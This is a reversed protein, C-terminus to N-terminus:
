RIEEMNYVPIYISVPSLIAPFCSPGMRILSPGSLAGRCKALQSLTFNSILVKDM